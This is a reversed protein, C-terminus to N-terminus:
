NKNLLMLRIKLLEKSIVLLSNAIEENLNIENIKSLKTEENNILLNLPNLSEEVINEINLDQVLDQDQNQNQKEEIDDHEFDEKQENEDIEEEIIEIDLNEFDNIDNIDNINNEFFDEKTEENEINSNQENEDKNEDENFYNHEHNNKQNEFITEEDNILDGQEVFPNEDYENEESNFNMEINENNEDITKNALLHLNNFMPEEFKEENQQEDENINQNIHHHTEIINFLRDRWEKIKTKEIKLILTTKKQMIAEAIEVLYNTIFGYFEDYQTVFEEPLYLGDNLRDKILFESMEYISGLKYYGLQRSDGKLTHSVRKIEVKVREYEEIPLNKDKLKTINNQYVENLDEVFQDIFYNTMEIKDPSLDIIEEVIDGDENQKEENIITNEKVDNPIYVDNEENESNKQNHDQEQEQDQHIYYDSNESNIKESVEDVMEQKDLYTTNIQQKQEAKQKLLIEDINENKAVYNVKREFNKIEELGFIEFYIDKVFKEPYEDGKELAEAFVEINQLLKIANERETDNFSYKDTKIKEIIIDRLYNVLEATKNFKSMVMIALTQSTKIVVDEAKIKNGNDCLDYFDNKIQSILNKMNKYIKRFNEKQTEKGLVTWDLKNTLLFKREQTISKEARVAQKKFLDIFDKRVDEKNDIYRKLIFFLGSYEEIELFSIKNDKNILNEQLKKFSEFIIKVDNHFIAQYKILNNLLPSIQILNKNNQVLVVYGDEQNDYYYERLYDFSSILADIIKNLNQYHKKFEEKRIKEEVNVVSTAKSLFKEINFRDIVEKIIPEDIIHHYNKQILFKDLTNKLNVFVPAKEDNRFAQLEQISTKIVLELNKRKDLEANEHNFAMLLRAELALFYGQYTIKHKLKGFFNIINYMKRLAVKANHVEDISSQSNLWENASDIYDQYAVNTKEKLDEKEILNFTKIEEETFEAFPYFLDNPKAKEELISKLKSWHDWLEMPYFDSEGTRSLKDIKNELYEIFASLSEISVNLSDPHAKRQKIVFIVNELKSLFEWESLKAMKLNNSVVRINKLVDDIVDDLRVENQQLKVLNNKENKLKTILMEKLQRVLGANFQYIKKM